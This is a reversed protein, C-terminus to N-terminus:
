LSFGGFWLEAILLFLALVFLFYETLSVWNFRLYYKEVWDEIGYRTIYEGLEASSWSVVLRLKREEESLGSWLGKEILISKQLNARRGFFKFRSKSLPWFIPIGWGTGYLDNIFHLTTAILFLWGWFPSVMIIILGVIIFIIPFHLAERHDHPNDKSAAVSGKKLLEPIADLDPSMALVIGVLFHWTPDIGTIVGALVTAFIGNAFDALLALIKKM